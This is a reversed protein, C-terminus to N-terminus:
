VCTKYSMYKISNFSSWINPFDGLHESRPTSWGPVPLVTRNAWCYCWTRTFYICHGTPTGHPKAHWNDWRGGVLHRIQFPRYTLRHAVPPLVPYFFVIFRKELVSGTEGWCVDDEGWLLVFLLYKVPCMQFTTNKTKSKPLILRFALKHGQEENTIKYKFSSVFDVLTM